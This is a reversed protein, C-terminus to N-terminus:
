EVAEDILCFQWFDDLVQPGISQSNKHRAYAESEGRTPRTLPTRNFGQSDFAVRVWSLESKVRRRTPM